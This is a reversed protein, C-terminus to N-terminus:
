QLVPLMNSLLHCHHLIMLAMNLGIFHFMYCSPEQWTWLQRFLMNLAHMKIIHVLEQFFSLNINQLVIQMFSILLLSVMTLTFTSSKQALQIGFGSKLALKPFLLKVLILIYKIKSGSLSLQPMMSSQEVMVFTIIM